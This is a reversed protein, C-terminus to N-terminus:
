IHKFNMNKILRLKYKFKLNKMKLPIFDFGFFEFSNKRKLPNMMNKASLYCDLAIDKM